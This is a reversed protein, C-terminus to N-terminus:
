RGRVCKEYRDLFRHDPDYREKLERYAPGNYLEDFTKRDFYSTSYLSKNGALASVKSEILRDYYGPSHDSRVGGWFGFNIYLENPDTPYLSFRASPDPSAAPCIWIPLLGVEDFMFRLFEPARTVPIEVDQIVYETNREKGLLRLLGSRQVISKIKWYTTSRLMGLHHYLRRVFRNEAGFARSCWFWDADWRWLYGRATLWDKGNERISRHYINMGSYDSVRPAHDAWEGTTLFLEQPSFVSGDIFAVPAGDALNERCLREIDRFFPDIETYRRHQLHVFPKTPVIRIRARLCYGLSGYSCPFGFFLARHENDPRCLICEGSGTLIEMEIVTEHVFGYRFSSSEIGGGSIAGGVTISKLEPVVAPVFGHPLLVDVAAEYPTMGEVDAWGEDTNIEIVHDFDRVDLNRDLGSARNRFLNSTSKRLRVERGAAAAQEFAALLREKRSRYEMAATPTRKQDSESAGVSSENGPIRRM